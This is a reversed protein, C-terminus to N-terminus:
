KCFAVAEEPNATLLTKMNEKMMQYWVEIVSAPADITALHLHFKLMEDNPSQGCMEAKLALTAALYMETPATRM